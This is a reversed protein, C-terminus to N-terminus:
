PMVPMTPMVPAASAPTPEPSAAPVPTEAALTPAPTAAVAESPTPLVVGSILKELPSGQFDVASLIKEQIKNKSGGDDWKGDVFLSDWDEKTPADFLFLRCDKDLDVAPVDYPKKSLTDLPPMIMDIDLRNVDKGATNKKVIIRVLYARGLSQAPHKIDNAWNLNDFLRKAGSKPNNGIALDFTSIFRGDYDGGFLKFGVKFERADPKKKGQYEQPHSGFEIYDVVRALAWGDPMLSGGGSTGEETM